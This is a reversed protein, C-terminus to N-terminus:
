LRKPLARLTNLAQDYDDRGLTGAVENQALRWSAFAREFTKRGLATVRVTRERRDTPPVHTTLLKSRVMLSVSRSLASQEIRLYTGLETLTPAEDRFVLASLLTFQTQKVGAAALHRDFIQTLV